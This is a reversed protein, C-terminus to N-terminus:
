WEMTMGGLMRALRRDRTQRLEALQGSYSKEIARILRNQEEAGLKYWQALSGWRDEYSMLLNSLFLEEGQEASAVHKALHPGAAAWALAPGLSIAKDVDDVDLVGELVLHICERWVAAQVRAVINGVIEKKFVIPARGLLGLWLRIDEVCGSDTLTSPVVEVVPLLEVPDLPHAVLFREPRRLRAALDSPRMAGASSTIIAALRAIPEVQELLRQKTALDDLTAEIIWEADNVAQLLSRGVRMQKLSEESVAPDARGLKVLNRVRLAIDDAARQTAQADVDYIAVPWGASVTLAAWGCGIESAGVVAVKPKEFRTM